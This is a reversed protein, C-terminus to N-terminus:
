SEILNVPIKIVVKRLNEPNELMIKPCHADGPFFVAFMGPCMRLLSFQRSISVFEQRDKEECYREPAVLQSVPTWRIGENGTLMMQIDITYLHNEWICEAEPLTEYGHVNAYWGPKDFQYVGIDANLANKAIWEMSNRLVPHRLIPM